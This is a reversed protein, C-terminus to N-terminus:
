RYDTIIAITRDARRIANHGVFSTVNKGRSKGVTKREDIQEKRAHFHM